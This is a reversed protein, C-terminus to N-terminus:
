WQRYDAVEGFLLNSLVVLGKGQEINVAFATKGPGFVVEPLGRRRARDVDVQAFDLPDIGSRSLKDMVDPVTTQGAKLATLLEYLTNTNM